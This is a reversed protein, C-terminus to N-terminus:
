VSANRRRALALVALLGIGLLGYTSPEPVAAFSYDSVVFDDFTSGPNVNGNGATYFVTRFDTGFVPSYITQGDLSGGDFLTNLPIRYEQLTTATGFPAIFAQSTLTGGVESTPFDNIFHAEMGVQNVGFVNFGTAFNSDRDVGFHLTFGGGNPNLAEAFRVLIFFDTDNNAFSVETIDLTGAGGTNGGIGTVTPTISAWDSADGDITINAYTGAQATLATLGLAATALTAQLTKNIKM